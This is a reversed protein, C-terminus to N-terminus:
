AVHPPRIDASAVEVVSLDNAPFPGAITPASSIGWEKTPIIANSDRVAWGVPGQRVVRALVQGDRAMPLREALVVSISPHDAMSALAYRDSEALSDFLPRHVVIQVPRSLAALRYAVLRLKSLALDALDGTGGAFVQTLTADPSASERMLAELIPAVEV